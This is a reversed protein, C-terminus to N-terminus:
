IVTEGVAVKLAALPKAEAPLLPNIIHYTMKFSVTGANRSDTPSFHQPTAASPSKDASPWCTFCLATLM